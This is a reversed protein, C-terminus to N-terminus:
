LIIKSIDMDSIDNEVAAVLYNSSETDQPAAQKGKNSLHREIWPIPHSAVHPVLDERLNMAKMRRRMLYDIYQHMIDANLGVIAGDKFLFEAWEKEQVAAQIYIQSAKDRNDGIIQIYEPDDEPMLRVLTQGLSLHLAEDRAIYEMTTGSGVILGRDMFSFNCAFSVYFRIAELANSAVLALYLNEKTPNKMLENYALSISEACDVIPKISPIEDIISTVNDYIARIIYTYSRSHIQEFFGWTTICNELSSDTAYPLFALQPARGQDTDLVIQRQLNRTAVFQEHDSMKNFSRREGSMDIVQPRWFREQMMADLKELQPYRPNDYRAIGRSEGFWLRESQTSMTLISPNM